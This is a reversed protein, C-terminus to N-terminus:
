RGRGEASRELHKRAAPSEPHEAAWECEGCRDWPDLFGREDGPGPRAGCGVCEDRPVGMMRRLDAAMKRHRYEPDVILRMGETM